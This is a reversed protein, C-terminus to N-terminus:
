KSSGKRLRKFGEWYGLTNAKARLKRIGKAATTSYNGEKNMYATDKKYAESKHDGYRNKDVAAGKAKEVARKRISRGARKSGPM